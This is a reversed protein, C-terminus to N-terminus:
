LEITEILEDRWQAWEKDKDLRVTVSPKGAIAFAHKV